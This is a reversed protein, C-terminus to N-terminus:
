LARIKVNSVKCWAYRLSDKCPEEGIDALDPRDLDDCSRGPAIALTVRYSVPKDFVGYQLSCLRGQM